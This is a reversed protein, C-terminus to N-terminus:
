VVPINDILFQNKVEFEKEIAKDLAGQIHANIKKVGELLWVRTDEQVDMYAKVREQDEGLHTLIEAMVPSYKQIIFDENHKSIKQQEPIALPLKKYKELPLGFEIDKQSIEDLEIMRNILQEDDSKFEGIDLKKMAAIMSIAMVAVEAFTGRQEQLYQRLEEYQNRIIEMDNALFDQYDKIVFGREGVDKKDKWIDIRAALKNQLQQMKEITEVSKEKLSQTLNDRNAIAYFNEINAMAAMDPFMFRDADIYSVRYSMRPTFFPDSDEIYLLQNRGRLKERVTRITEISMRKPSVSISRQKSRGKTKGQATSETNSVGNTITEGSGRAENHSTTKVRSKGKTTQHNKSKTTNEQSSRNHQIGQSINKQGGKSKTNQSNESKGENENLSSSWLLGRKFTTGSSKSNGSNEGKSWNEGTGINKNVGTGYGSGKTKSLATGFAEGWNTGRAESVGDSLTLTKSLTSSNSITRSNTVTVSESESETEGITVTPVNFFDDGILKVWYELEKLERASFVQVCAMNQIITATTEEGYIQKFQSLSQAILWLNIGRGALTGVGKEVLDLKGFVPLEDLMFLIRQKQKLESTNVNLDTYVDKQSFVASEFLLRMYIACNDMFDQPVVLYVAMKEKRMNSFSFTSQLMDNKFARKSVWSLSISAQVKANDPIKTKTRSSTLLTLLEHLMAEDDAKPDTKILHKLETVFNELEEDNYLLVKHVEVLNRRYPEWFRLCLTLLGRMFIMTTNDWIPENSKRGEPDFMLSRVIREIVDDSSKSEPNEFFPDLPNFFDLGFQSNTQNYPDLVVVRHGQLRKASATQALTQGKIDLIFLSGEHALINPIVTGVGKGTRTPAITMLHGDTSIKLPEDNIRGVIYGEGTNLLRSLGLQDNVFELSHDHKVLSSPLPVDNYITTLKQQLEKM